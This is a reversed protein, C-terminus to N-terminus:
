LGSLFELVVKIILDVRSLDNRISFCWFLLIQLIASKVLNLRGDTKYFTIFVLASGFLSVPRLPADVSLASSNPPVLDPYYQTICCQSMTYYQTISGRRCDLVPPNARM